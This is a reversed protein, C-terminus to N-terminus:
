HYAQYLCPKIITQIIQKEFFKLPNVIYELVIIINQFIKIFFRPLWVLLWYKKLKNFVQCCKCM